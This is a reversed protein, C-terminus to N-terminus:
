SKGEGVVNLSTQYGVWETTFYCVKRLGDSVSVWIVDRGDSQNKSPNVNSEICPRAAISHTSLASCSSILVSKFAM